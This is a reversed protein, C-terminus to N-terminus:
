IWAMGNEASMALDAREPPGAATLAAATSADLEAVQGADPGDALLFGHLLIATATPVFRAGRQVYCEVRGDLLGRGVLRAVSYRAHLTEDLAADGLLRIRARAYGPVWGRDALLRSVRLGRDTLYDETLSELARAYAAFSMRGSRHCAPHAVRWARHFGGLTGAAAAAALAQQEHGVDHSGVSTGLGALDEVVLPALDPPVEARAPRDRVLGVTLRGRLVDQRAHGRWTWLRVDWYRPGIGAVEASVEDGTGLPSKFLVSADLVSLRLGYDRYLAAPAQDRERFRSAVAEESLATLQSLGAWAGVGASEYWPQLIVKDAM